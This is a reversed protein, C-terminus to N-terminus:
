ATQGCGTRFLFAGIFILIPAVMSAIAGARIFPRRVATLEMKAVLGLNLSRLPEYAALVTVSRYDPGIMLGSQGALARRMPEAAKANLQVPAPFDEGTVGNDILFEIQDGIKRGIVFEVSNDSMNRNLNADRIQSITAAIAGDPHDQRSHVADFRAVANLMRAQSQALEILRTRGEDFAAQYLAGISVALVLGTITVMIAILTIFRSRDNM